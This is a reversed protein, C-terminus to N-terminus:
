RPNNLVRGNNPAASHVSNPACHIVRLTKMGGSLLFPLVDDWMVRCGMGWRGSGSGCRMFIINFTWRDLIRSLPFPMRKTVELPKLLQKWFCFIYCIGCEFLWIWKWFSFIRIIRESKNEAFLFNWLMEIMFLRSFKRKREVSHRIYMYRHETTFSSTFISITHRSIRHFAKQVVNMSKRKCKGWIHLLKVGSHLPSSATSSSCTEVNGLDWLFHPFNNWKAEPWTNLNFFSYLLFM